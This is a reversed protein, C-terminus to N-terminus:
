PQEPKTPSSSPESRFCDTYNLICIYKPARAKNCAVGFSPASPKASAAVSRLLCPGLCATSLIGRSFSLIKMKLCPGLCATSLIGRSLSLIKMKLCPGLCATSLIGRSGSRHRIELWLGPKNLFIAGSPLPPSASFHM